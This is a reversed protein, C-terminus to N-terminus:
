VAVPPPLEESAPANRRSICGDEAIEYYGMRELPPSYVHLSVSRERGGNRVDHIRSADFCFGAGAAHTASVVGPEGMVLRDEVLGGSVVRVAGSSVDHDHLGTEQAGSWCILWADVVDDRHIRVYVRRDDDHQVLDGWLDARAALEEAVALLGSPDLTRSRPLREGFWDALAPEMAADMQPERTNTFRNVANHRVARGSALARREAVDRGRGPERGGADRVREAALTHRGLGLSANAGLRRPDAEAGIRDRPGQAHARGAEDAHDAPAELVEPVLLEGCLQLAAEPAVSAVHQEGVRAAVGVGLDRQGLAEGVLADVPEHRQRHIGAGGLPQGDDAGNGRHRDSGRERRGRAGDAEGGVGRDAEDDVVEVLGPM